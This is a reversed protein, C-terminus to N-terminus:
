RLHSDVHVEAVFRYHVGNDTLVPAHEVRCHVSRFFCSHTGVDSERPGPPFASDNASCIKITAHSLTAIKRKSQSIRSFNLFINLTEIERIEIFDKLFM